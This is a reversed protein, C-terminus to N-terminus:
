LVSSFDPMQQLGWAKLALDRLMGQRDNLTKLNWEEFYPIGGFAKGIQTKGLDIPAALHRTLILNSNRFGNRKKDLPQNSISANISKEILALNGLQHVIRDYEEESGAMQVKFGKDKTIPLVHEIEIGKEVFPALELDSQQRFAKYQIYQYIKGLVYRLKYKQINEDTMEDLALMFLREELACQRDSFFRQARAV